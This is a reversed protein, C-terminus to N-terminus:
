LQAKYNAKEIKFKQGAISDVNLISPALSDRSGWQYETM